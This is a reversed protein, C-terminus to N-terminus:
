QDEKVVTFVAVYYPITSKEAKSYFEKKEVALYTKCKWELAEAEEIAKEANKVSAKSFYVKHAKDENDTIYTTVYKGYKGFNVWMGKVPIARLGALEKADVKEISEKEETFLM